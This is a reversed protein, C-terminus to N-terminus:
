YYVLHFVKEIFQAGEVSKMSQQYDPIGRFAFEELEKLLVEKADPEADVIQKLRFQVQAFHSTLAMLSSNLQEQDEEMM